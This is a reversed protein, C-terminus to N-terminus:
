GRGTALLQRLRAKFRAAEAPDVAAAGTFRVSRPNVAVGRRYTEYHLHPGTSLGSSGVYGILQGQRVLTGPEVVMRSMHSYSTAIGGNHAIRVQRGYGGAWGARNVVGDASAVIPTGWRAGFDIGKHMRAFRLIPHVRLGFNSTIPASVPWALAAPSIQTLSAADYWGTRGGVTWKLMQLPGGTFREIGAYLLPGSREEGTAARRHAVILDFRDHPALDAGVDIRTALAKLYDAAAQSSVGSARLSWYLGDGVRGRIRRPRQDVAIRTATLGLGAASREVLLNADIGARLAIRDVGRLGGPERRGLRVAIATGPDIGRPAASAILRAVQVADAALAGVRVLLREIRDGRGLRLDLDVQSREPAVLLPEVRSSAVMRAGSRAGAGLPAVGIERIERRIKDDTEAPSVPLPEFRPALLGVTGCLLALTAAGRWWRASFIEEGLDVVISFRELAPRAAPVFHRPAFPRAVPMVGGGSDEFDRWQYM